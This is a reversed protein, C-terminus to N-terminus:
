ENRNWLSYSLYASYIHSPDAGLRSDGNKRRKIFITKEAVFFFHLLLSNDEREERPVVAATAACGFNAVNVGESGDKLRFHLFSKQANM